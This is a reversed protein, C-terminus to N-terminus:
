TQANKCCGHPKRFMIQKVFVIIQSGGISILLQATYSSSCQPSFALEAVFSGLQDLPATQTVLSGSCLIKRQGATEKKSSAAKSLSIFAGQKSSALDSLRHPENM